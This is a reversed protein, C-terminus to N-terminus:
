ASWRRPRARLEGAGLADCFALFRERPVGAFRTGELTGIPADTRLTALRRYLLADQRREELTAALRPAQRVPPWTAPDAPIHEIHIFRALVASASKEGFGPM